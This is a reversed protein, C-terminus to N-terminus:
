KKVGFRKLRRERNKKAEEVRNKPAASTVLSDLLKQSTREIDIIAKEYAKQNINSPTKFGSIKRVFQEAAFHVEDDSAPPDFNFLLKINRCM